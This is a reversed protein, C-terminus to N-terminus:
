SGGSGSVPIWLEVGGLGTAGNFDAAYRELNPTPAAKYGSEPLSTWAADWSSRITSIHGRHTFVLYKHPAISLHAWEAPLGSFESVEVGCIYDFNGEADGNYCVGYTERGVRVPITADLSPVFCQWQAPIGASTKSTYHERPGAILLAAGDVIQPKELTDIM